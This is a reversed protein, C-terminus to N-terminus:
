YSNSKSYSKSKSYSYSYSKSYSKSKKDDDKGHNGKVEYKAFAMVGGQTKIRDLTAGQATRGVCNRPGTSELVPHRPSTWREVIRHVQVM